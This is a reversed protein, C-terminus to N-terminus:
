HFAQRRQHSAISICLNDCLSLVSMVEELLGMRFSRIFDDLIKARAPEPEAVCLKESKPSSM